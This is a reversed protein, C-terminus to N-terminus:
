ETMAFEILDKQNQFHTFMIICWILKIFVCVVITSIIDYHFAPVICLGM